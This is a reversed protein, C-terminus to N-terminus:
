AWECTVRQLGRRETHKDAAPNIEVPRGEPGICRMDTDHSYPRLREHIHQTNRLNEDLYLPAGDMPVQSILTFQHGSMHQSEDGSIGLHKALRFAIVPCTLPHGESLLRLFPLLFENQTPISM